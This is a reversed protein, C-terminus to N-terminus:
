GDANALASCSKKGSNISSHWMAAATSSIIDPPSARRSNSGPTARESIGAQARATIGEFNQKLIFNVVGTVGDAGYIASAGGTLVDVRDVLETPSPTSTSRRLARRPRRRPPPRRDAGAHAAASTACTSCTSGPSGAPIGGGFQGGLHNLGSWRQIVTLFDTLNTTGSIEM